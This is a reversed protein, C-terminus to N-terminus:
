LQWGIHEQWDNNFEVPRVTSGTQLNLDSRRIQAQNGLSKHLTETDLRISSPASGTINNKLICRFRM